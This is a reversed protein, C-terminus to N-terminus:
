VRWVSAAFRGSVRDRRHSFFRSPNAVTCWAPTGDNGHIRTIGLAELRMRALGQLDALWKGERYIRFHRAAEADKAVFAARV